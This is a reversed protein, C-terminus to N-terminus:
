LVPRVLFRWLNTVYVRQECWRFAYNFLLMFLAVATFHLCSSNFTLGKGSSCLYSDSGTKNLCFRFAPHQSGFHRFCSHIFPSASSFHAWCKSYKLPSLWRVDGPVMGFQRKLNLITNVLHAQSNRFWMWIVLWCQLFFPLVWLKRTIIAQFESGCFSIFLDRERCGTCAQASFMSAKHPCRCGGSHFSVSARAGIARASSGHTGPERKPTSM